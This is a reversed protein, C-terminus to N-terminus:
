REDLLSEGLDLEVLLFSRAPERRGPPPAVLVPHDETGVPPRRVERDVHRVHPELPVPPMLPEDVHEPGVVMAVDSAQLRDRTREAAIRLLDLDENVLEDVQGLAALRAFHRLSAPVDDEEVLKEVLDTNVRSAPVQ